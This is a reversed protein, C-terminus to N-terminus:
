LNANETYPNSWMVVFVVWQTLCGCYVYARSTLAFPIAYQMWNQVFFTKDSYIHTHSLTKTKARLLGIQVRNWVHPLHVKAAVKFHKKNTHCMQTAGDRANKLCHLNAQFWITWWHKNSYSLINQFLKESYNKCIYWTHISNNSNVVFHVYMSSLKLSVFKNWSFNYKKYRQIGNLLTIGFRVIFIILLIIM